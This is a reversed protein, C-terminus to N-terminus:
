NLYFFGSCFGHVFLRAWRRIWLSRSRDFYIFNFVNCDLPSKCPSILCCSISNLQSIEVPWYWYWDEDPTKMVQSFVPIPWDFYRLKVRNWTTQDTGAFTKKVTVNEFKRVWPAGRYLCYVGKCELVLILNSKKRAYERLISVGSIKREGKQM